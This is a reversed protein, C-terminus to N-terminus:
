RRVRAARRLRVGVAGLPKGTSAILPLAAWAEQGHVTRAIPLGRPFDSSSRTETPLFVPERSRVVEALPTEGDIAIRDFRRRSWTEVGREDMLVLEPRGDSGDEVRYIAVRPTHVIERLNSVVVRAIEQESNAEGLAAMIAQLRETRERAIQEAEFALARALAQGCQAAFLEMFEREDDPLDRM